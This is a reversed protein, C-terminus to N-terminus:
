IDGLSSRQGCRARLKSGPFGISAWLGSVLQLWWGQYSFCSIQLFLLRQCFTVALLLLSPM